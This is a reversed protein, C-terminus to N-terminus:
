LPAIYEALRAALWVDAQERTMAELEPEPAMTLRSYLEAQRRQKTTVAAAGHCVGTAQGCHQPEARGALRRRGAPGGGNPKVPGWPQAPAPAEPLHM